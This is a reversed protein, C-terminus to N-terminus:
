LPYFSMPIGEHSINEPKKFAFDGAHSKIELASILMNGAM